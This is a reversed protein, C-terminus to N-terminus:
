NYVVVKEQETYNGLISMRKKKRWRKLEEKLKEIGEKGEAAYGELKEWTSNQSWETEGAALAEEKWMNCLSTVEQFSLLVGTHEYIWKVKGMCGHYGTGEGYTKGGEHTAANSKKFDAM